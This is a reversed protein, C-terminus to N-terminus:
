KRGKRRVDRAVVIASDPDTISHEVHFTGLWEAKALELEGQWSKGKPLLWFSHRDALHQASSLLKPLPAYARASIVSAPRSAFTEVRSLEARVNTIKLEDIVQQLFEVRKRRSDVLVVEGDFLTAVVIGPLGAGAGLDIWVGTSFPVLPVLQASDVIHRSWVHDRTSASILNQRESELLLLSVYRELRDMTGRSVHASGKLWDRAEDENM